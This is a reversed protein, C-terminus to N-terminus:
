FYYIALVIGFFAGLLALFWFFLDVQSESFGKLEFHHHLPSMLFIRKGKTLKFYSVQLIVSLTELVFVFGIILLLIEVKLLIAINAISAGLALSGADGMFIKAPHINYCLFAILGGIISFGFMIIYQDNYYNAIVILSLISVIVLGGALGDLGDTINVANSSALLILLMWVGYFWKLDIEYGFLNLTTFLGNKLFFYFYIASCVIQLIIKQRAQLGQNSKKIVILYDDIFGILCYVITPFCILFVYTFNTLNNKLLVYIFSILSGLVILCGGMTPTGQKKLHEKPGEERIMQGFRVERLIPIFIIFLLVTVILSIALAELYINM